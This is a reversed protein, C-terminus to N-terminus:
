PRQRASWGPARMKFLEPYLYGKPVKGIRMFNKSVEKLDDPNINRYLFGSLIWAEHRLALTEPDTAESDGCKKNLERLTDHCGKLFDKLSHSYGQDRLTERAFHPRSLSYVYDVRGHPPKVLRQFEEDSVSRRYGAVRLTHARGEAVEQEDPM